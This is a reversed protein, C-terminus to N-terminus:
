GAVGRGSGHGLQGAQEAGGICEVGHALIARVTGRELGSGADSRQSDLSTGSPEVGTSDVGHELRGPVRRAATRGPRAAQGRALDFNQDEGSASSGIADDSGREPDRGFRGPGVDLVDVGLESHGGAGSGGKMCELVAQERCGLVQSCSSM